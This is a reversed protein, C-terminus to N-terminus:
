EVKEFDREFQVKRCVDIEGHENKLIYDGTKITRYCGLKLEVQAFSCCLDDNDPKRLDETISYDSLLIYKFVVNNPSVFKKVEEENNGTWQIAEICYTKAKYKM